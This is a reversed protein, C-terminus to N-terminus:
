GSLSIVLAVLGGVLLAALIIGAVALSVSHDGGQAPEAPDAASSSGWQVIDAMEPVPEHEPEEVHETRDVHTENRASM